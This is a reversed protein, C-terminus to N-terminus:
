SLHAQQALKIEHKGEKNEIKKIQKMYYMGLFFIPSIVLLYLISSLMNEWFSTPLENEIISSEVTKFKSFASPLNVITHFIGSVWINKSLYFVASLILGLGMAFFIQNIIAWVDGHKTFNISHTLAFLITSIFISKLVPNTYKRLVYYIYGRFVFEEGTATFFTSVLILAISSIDEVGHEFIKQRYLVVYVLLAVAAPLLLKLSGYKMSHQLPFNSSSGLKRVMLFMIACFLSAKGIKLWLMETTSFGWNSIPFALIGLILAFAIIIKIYM